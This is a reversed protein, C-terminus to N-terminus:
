ILVLRSYLLLTKSQLQPSTCYKFFSCYITKSTCLHTWYLITDHNQTQAFNTTNEKMVTGISCLHSWRGAWILAWAIVHQVDTREHLLALVMWTCKNLLSGLTFCQLYQRLWPIANTQVVYFTEAFAVYIKCTTKITPTTKKFEQDCTDKAYWELYSWPTREGNVSKTVSNQSSCTKLVRVFDSAFNTYQLGKITLKRTRLGWDYEIM